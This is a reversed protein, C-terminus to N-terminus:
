AAPKGEMAAKSQDRRMSSEGMVPVSLFGTLTLRSRRPRGRESPPTLWGRKKAEPYFVEEYGQRVYAHLFYDYITFDFPIQLSEDFFAAAEETVEHPRYVEDLRDLRLAAQITTASVGKLEVEADAIDSTKLYRKLVHKVWSDDV